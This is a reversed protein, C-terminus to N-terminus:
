YFTCTIFESLTSIIVPLPSFNLPLTHICIDESKIAPLCFSDM